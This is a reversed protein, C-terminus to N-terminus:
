NLRSTRSLLNLVDRLAVAYGYQWYAKERSGEDLHAQEDVVEPFHERLQERLADYRARIDDRPDARMDRTAAKNMTKM